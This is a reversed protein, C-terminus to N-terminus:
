AHGALRNIHQSLEELAQKYVAQKFEIVQTHPYWYDVWEWADFEAPDNEFLSIADDSELMRLLFWIQKQGICRPFSRKRLLRQPIEYRLWDRTRGLVEVAHPKLGVEEYLERYMAEEASEGADIGGQPFQWAQQGIRKGFFVRNEDNVIVIGVNARYGQSDIM